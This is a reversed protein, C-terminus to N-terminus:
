YIYKVSYNDGDGIFDKVAKASNNAAFTPDMISWDKGDFYIIGSVWGIDTIYTSIWAHYATGAYGVELRTPINQSRLMAAMLSSYDLCIGKGSSLTTDPDPLYGSKVNAALDYDYEINQVVYNFINTVVELDSTCNASLKEAKAVCSSDATFWVYQNPYLFPGFTNTIKVSFSETLVRFYDNDKVNELVSISYDGSDYLPFTEYDSGPTLNYTYKTGSPVTIQLKVKAATGTYKVMIYGESANSIDASAVSSSLVKTDDASPILVYPTNDRISTSSDTAVENTLPISESSNDDNSSSVSTSGEDDNSSSVSTSGTNVSLQNMQDCGALGCATVSVMLFFLLIRKKKM